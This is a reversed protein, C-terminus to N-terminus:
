PKAGIIKPSSKWSLKGLVTTKLKLESHPWFPCIVM